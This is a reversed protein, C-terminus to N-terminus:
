NRLIESLTDEFVGNLFLAQEVPAETERKVEHAGVTVTSQASGKPLLHIPASKPAEFALRNGSGHKGLGLGVFLRVGPLIEVAHAKNDNITIDTGSDVAVVMHKPAHIARVEVISHGVAIRRGVSVGLSLAM